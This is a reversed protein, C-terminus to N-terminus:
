IEPIQKVEATYNKQDTKESSPTVLNIKKCLVELILM